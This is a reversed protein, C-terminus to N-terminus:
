TSFIQNRLPNEYKKQKMSQKFVKFELESKRFIRRSFSLVLFIIQPFIKLCNFPSLNWARILFREVRNARRDNLRFTRKIMCTLFSAPWSSAAVFRFRSLSCLPHFIFESACAIIGYNHSNHNLPTHVLSCESELNFEHTLLSLDYERPPLELLPERVNRVCERWCEVYKEDGGLRYERKFSIVLLLFTNFFFLSFVFATASLNWMQMECRTVQGSKIRIHQM